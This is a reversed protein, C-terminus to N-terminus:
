FYAKGEMTLKQFVNEEADGFRLVYHCGVSIFDNVDASLSFEFRYTRGESYGNMVQYPVVEGRETVRIVSLNVFTNVKNLSSYGLRLAGEWLDADFPSDIEDAGSGNRYRGLPQVYFNQLFDFRYKLSADYVNWNWVSLASLEEEQYLLSAGVFHDLNIRYGGEFSHSYVSEMYSVSSLKRDFDLEPKYTLFAGSPHRWDVLGEMSIRGSTLRRLQGITVAPFYLKKGTTDSGEGSWSGGLTIDRLIGNKIGLALGPSWRVDAAFAAESSLVAGVSDNRGMGELVFDGNDVGEIYTGTLSDYRVDGTGPAVAKYVATYIQEETLGLKYSVRGEFGLEDGGFRADLDGVWSSEDGAEATVNREYQLLHSLNFYRSRINAEQTWTAVKLSDTWEKGYSDGRRVAVRGGASEKVELADMYVGVGAATKGYLVEDLFDHENLPSIRTYRVDVNGFPRLWEKLYEASLQAQYREQEQDQLSVVRVLSLESVAAQDRHALSLRVRSSNWSEDESRRYGWQTTGFWGSGLRMRMAFEDYLLEQNKLDGDAFALDWDDRLRYMNWDSAGGQFESVDFGAQIRNGCVSMALPFHELNRTSDTTVFWRFAKGSPGDVEDSVTNSDERNMAIEVDAYFQRNQQVQIRAGMRDTRKPRLLAGLSDDRAFEGGRDHRLLAYDEDTWVGRRLRDVDNQLSFGSVDLYLNPHRFSAAAGYLTYINEDEYADYEVRIEDDFTPLVAGKFDLLGGAYNVLYDVGRELRRGNRWVTESSPVVAVFTGSPDLSYGERQGSVGRITRTVHQVEDTGAVGRVEARGGAFEGRAGVMAGLTSREFTFLELSEDKWTLDGLHLMYRPSEVRFYIQDVERLTSTVQDGARRGVDSLLADVYVSDTLRGTISLRLEQDVQTGGDGVTIQMSKFGHTEISDAGAAPKGQLSDEGVNAANNKSILGDDWVPLSDVDMGFSVAVLLLLGLVISRPM